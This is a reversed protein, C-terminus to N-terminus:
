STPVQLVFGERFFSALSSGSRVPLGYLREISSYASDDM